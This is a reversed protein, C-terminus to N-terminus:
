KGLCFNSFIEDLISEIDVKGFVFDLSSVAFYLEQAALEFPAPRHSLLSSTEKLSALAAQLGDLQRQRIAVFDEVTRNKFRNSILELLKPVGDGTKGSVSLEIGNRCDSKNLVVLDDSSAPIKLDEDFSSVLFIRLDAESARKYAMTIGLNEIKEDTERLGATDLFTVPLGKLDVRIELVDRTTGAVDSTIAAQRGAINNLLTSKGVNPAGVIAVTFGSRIKSAVKSRSLVESISSGVGEVLDAVEVHLNDPIEEDSFDISAELLATARLLDRRWSEGADSFSGDLVKIAQRRQAETEADILDSLAEVQNLDLCGNSLARRTFEGPEALRCNCFFSLESMLKSVTALGGHVHFEIVDEGTFSAGRDFKLVLARDILNDDRDRLSRLCSKSNTPIKCFNQSIDFAQEGSVRIIAVGARGPATAQAFITDM